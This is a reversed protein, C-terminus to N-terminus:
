LRPQSNERNAHREEEYVHLTGQPVTERGTIAGGRPRRHGQKGSNRGTGDGHTGLPPFFLKDSPALTFSQQNLTVLRARSGQLPGM